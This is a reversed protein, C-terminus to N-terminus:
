LLLWQYCRHHGGVHLAQAPHHAVVVIPHRGPCPEVGEVICGEGGVELVEGGGDELETLGELRTVVFKHTERNSLNKAM